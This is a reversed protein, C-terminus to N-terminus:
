LETIETKPTEDNLPKPLPAEDIVINNASEIETIIEKGLSMLNLITPYKDEDVVRKGTQIGQYCGWAFMILKIVFMLISATNVGYEGFVMIANAFAIIITMIFPMASFRLGTMYPHSIYKSGVKRNGTGFAFMNDFTTYDYKVRLTALNLTGNYEPVKGNLFDIYALVDSKQAEITLVESDTIKKSLLQNDLIDLYAECKSLQNHVKLRERFEKNVRKKIILNRYKKLTNAILMYDPNAMGVDLGMPFYIGRGAIFNMISFTFEFWNFQKIDFRVQLLLTFVMLAVMLFTLLSTIVVRARGVKVPKLNFKKNM